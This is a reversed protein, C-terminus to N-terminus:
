HRARDQWDQLLATRLRAASVSLKRHRQTSIYYGKGGRLGQQGIVSLRGADIESDILGLSGLAIGNGAIAEGIARAYSGCHHLPIAALERIGTKQIWVKWNIWDPALREYELLVAGGTAGIEGLQTDAPYGLGALYHPHAVPVLEEAFLLSSEWGPIDGRGYTVALDNDRELLDRLRDSTLLRVPGADTALGFDRLRPGLWFLSSSSNAAIQVVEGGEQMESLVADELYELATASRDYLRRGAGTLSLKRGKRHFLRIGLQGELEKIRKSVAAQTVFLESAAATFSNHRAAAEFFILADLSPLDRRYSQM